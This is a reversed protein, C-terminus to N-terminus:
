TEIFNVESEIDVGFIEKVSNTILQAFEKVDGATAGAETVISLSHFPSLGVVDRWRKMGYTQKNYPTCEMLFATSVKVSGDPLSWHWPSLRESIDLFNERVLIELRAFEVTSLITNKFFSGASRFCGPVMGINKRIHLVAQRIEILTPEKIKQEVLYKEISQSASRYSLNTKGTPAFRFTVATVILNAGVPKKFVSERYGFECDKASLVRQQMSVTDFVMVEKILDGVSVGYANINQVPSAGVTGPIGSLNELGALDKRIVTEVFNDWNEGAAVTVLTSGDDVLKFDIGKLENKIVLRSLVGDAVLMNSGDGLITVPLNSSQAFEVIVPLTKEDNLVTFYRAKGGVQLTTYEALSVNERIQPNMVPNNVVKKHNVGM